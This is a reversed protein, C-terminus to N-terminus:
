VEQVRETGDTDPDHGPVSPVFPLADGHTRHSEYVRGCPWQEIKCRKTVLIHAGTGTYYQHNVAFAQM